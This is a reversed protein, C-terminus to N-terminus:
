RRREIAAKAAKFYDPHHHSYLETTRASTHGLWGAIQHLDVGAQAMWTGCTHRFVHSSVGRIEARRCAAALAHQVTRIRRGCYSLVFDSDSRRRSARLAVLLQMPIPIIPRRKNTPARGPENFDIRGRDLDVQSWRLGLIAGRRAGTYLAIRIFLPLHHRVSPQLRSARLLRAAESRTLWRDRGPQKQPLEVFPAATLYGNKVSYNVAARLVVLERAVTGPRVGARVRHQLYQRCTEPRIADVRRDRWWELLRTMAFGVRAAGILRAAHRDAYITLAEAVSFEDPYRPGVVPRELGRDLLWRGFVKEAEGREGSGTSRERTHGAEHWRITWARGVLVLRPGKGPRGGPV